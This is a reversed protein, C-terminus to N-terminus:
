DMFQICIYKLVPSNQQVYKIIYMIGSIGPWRDKYARGNGIKENVKIEQNIEL